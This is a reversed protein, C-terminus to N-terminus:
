RTTVPGYQGNGYGSYGLGSGAYAAVHKGNYGASAANTGTTGDARRATGDAHFGLGQDVNPDYPDYQSGALGPLGVMGTAANFMVETISKPRASASSVSPAKGRRAKGALTQPGQLGTKPPQIVSASNGNDGEAFAERAAADIEAARAISAQREPSNLRAHVRVADYDSDANRSAAHGAMPLPLALSLILAFVMCVRARSFFVALCFSPRFLSFLVTSYAM